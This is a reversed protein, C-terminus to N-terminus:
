YMGQSRHEWAHTPTGYRIKIYNLMGIAESLADGIGARGNPYYKDVNALLLQGLGTASAKTSKIGQRLESWIRPWHSRNKPTHYPRYTYNPIGVWGGSELEMIQILGPDSAWSSPVGLKAAAATFLEIQEPSGPKYRPSGFPKRFLLYFGLGGLVWPIWAPRRSAM